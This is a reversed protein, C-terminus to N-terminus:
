SACANHSPFASSFPANLTPRASVDSLERQRTLSPRLSHTCMEHHRPLSEEFAPLEAVPHTTERNFTHSQPLLRQVSPLSPLSSIWETEVPGFALPVSSPTRAPTSSHSKPVIPARFFSHAICVFTSSQPFSSRIATPLRNSRHNKACRAPTPRVANPLQKAAVSRIITRPATATPRRSITGREM